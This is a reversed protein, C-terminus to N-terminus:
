IWRDDLSFFSPNQGTSNSNVARFHPKNASLFAVFSFVFTGCLGWNRRSPTFDLNMFLFPWLVLVFWRDLVFVVLINTQYKIFQIVSLYTCSYRYLKKESEGQKWIVQDKVGGLAWDSMPCKTYYIVLEGVSSVLLLAPSLRAKGQLCFCCFEVVGAHGSRMHEATWTVYMGQGKWLVVRYQKYHESVSFSFSILTKPGGTYWIPALPPGPFISPTLWM